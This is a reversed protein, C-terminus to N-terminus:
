VIFLLTTLSVFILIPSIISGYKLFDKFGFKLGTKNLIGMWMIGALAGIPTFYAGINSAIITSYIKEDLFSVTSANIIKEFMVSMPINNLINCSFFSTIGYTYITNNHTETYNNLVGAISDIMGVKNLGTVIIFMSLIFPILNYPLRKLSNFLIREKRIYYYISLIIILSIAFVLCILWMELKIYSSIALLITCLGLHILGIITVFKNNTEEELAEDINMPKALQKKFIFLLIILATLGTILTPIFMIKFYTFFDIDFSSAVYINTPNGIILMMSWTNAFIFEGILYPIPSIKTNKAFYCIFPTFTLIVIDNSTFVTLISIVLSFSLFLNIQKGKAFRTALIACKKFFGAEDLVISLFSVAVFLVLIKIPNISSDSTFITGIEKFSIQGLVILLLAGILPVVWFTQIERNKIKITPKFIITIILTIITILSILITTM